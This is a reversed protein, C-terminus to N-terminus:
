VYIITLGENCDQETHSDRRFLLGDMLIRCYRGASTTRNTNVIGERIEACVTVPLTPPVTVSGVPATTGL